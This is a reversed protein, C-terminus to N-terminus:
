RKGALQRVLGVVQDVVTNPSGAAGPQAQPQSQPRAQAVPRPQSSTLPAHQCGAPRASARTPPAAPQAVASVGPSVPAPSPGRSRCVLAIGLRQAVDRALDTLVVDDDVVLQTIGRAALDEIDQMSYFTRM